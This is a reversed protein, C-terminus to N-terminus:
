NLINKKPYVPIVKYFYIFQLTKRFLNSLKKKFM